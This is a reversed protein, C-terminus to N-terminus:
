NQSPFIGQLAIVFNITLFPQLNLHAQSGGVPQTVGPVVQSGAAPLRYPQAPGTAFRSSGPAVGPTAATPNAPLGGAHSHGPLENM